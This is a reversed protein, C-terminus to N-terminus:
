KDVGLHWLVVVYLFGFMLYTISTILLIYSIMQFIYIIFISFVFMVNLIVLVFITDKILKGETYPQFKFRRFNFVYKPTRFSDELKRFDIRDVTIFFFTTVIGLTTILTSFISESIEIDLHTFLLSLIIITPLCVLHIKKFSNDFVLLIKKIFM